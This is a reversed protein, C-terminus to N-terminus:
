NSLSPGLNIRYSKMVSLVNTVFEQVLSSEMAIYMAHMVDLKAPIIQMTECMPASNTRFESESEIGACTEVTSM